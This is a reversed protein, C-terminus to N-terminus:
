TPSLVLIATSTDTIATDSCTWSASLTSGGTVVKFHSWDVPLNVSGNLYQADSTWGSPQTITCTSGVSNEHLRVGFALDNATVTAGTTVSITQASTFLQNKGATRVTITAPMNTIKWAMFVGDNGGTVAPPTITHSGATPNQGLYFGGYTTSNSNWAVYAATQKTLTVGNSITPAGQDAGALGNFCCVIADGAATTFTSSGAVTSYGAGIAQGAYILSVVPTAGGGGSTLGALIARRRLLLSNGM